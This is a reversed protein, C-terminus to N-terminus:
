RCVALVVFCFVNTARQKRKHHSEIRPGRRRGRRRKHEEPSFFFVTNDEPFV